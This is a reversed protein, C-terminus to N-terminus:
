LFVEVSAHPVLCLAIAPAHAAAPVGGLDLPDSRLLQVLEICSETMRVVLDHQELALQLDVMREDIDLDEEPITVTEDEVPEVARTSLTPNLDLNALIACMSLPYGERAFPVEDPTVKQEPQSAWSITRALRARMDDAVGAWLQSGREDAEIQRLIEVDHARAVSVEIKSRIRRRLVNVNARVRRSPHTQLMQGVTQLWNSMRSAAALYRDCVAVLDMADEGEMASM